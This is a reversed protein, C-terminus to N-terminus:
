VAEMMRLDCFATTLCPLNASLCLGTKKHFTNLDFVDKYSLDITLKITYKESKIVPVLANVSIPADPSWLDVGDEDKAHMIYLLTSRPALFDLNCNINKPAADMKVSLFEECTKNEELDELKNNEFANVLNLAFLKSEQSDKNHTNLAM